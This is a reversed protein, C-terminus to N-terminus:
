TIQALPIGIRYTHSVECLGLFVRCAVMGGFNKVIGMLTMVIGWSIMMFSLWYSPRVKKLVINSPIEEM